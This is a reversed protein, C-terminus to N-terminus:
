KVRWFRVVDNGSEDHMVRMKFKRRPALRKCWQCASSGVRNRVEVAWDDGVAVTRSDGVEMTEFGYFTPRHAPMPIGKEIPSVLM